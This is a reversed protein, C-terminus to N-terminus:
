KMWLEDVFYSRHDSFSGLRTFGAAFALDRIERPSFKWSTEVHVAEFAGLRMEFDLSPMHVKQDELSVLWSEMAGTGPNYAAMHRFRTEDFDAGLERNLRRLLNFNFERTVGESDDYARLMVQADKKLDFGVLLVDGPYMVARLRRLIARQEEPTYNGVSSGLYLILNRKDKALPLRQLDVELDLVCPEITVGACSRTFRSVLDELAEASIDVPRYVLNELTSQAERLLFATKRGDGAGLEVINLEHREGCAALIDRSSRKLIESECRTPYYDNLETIKEFLRSGRSDYFYKSPIHRPHRNLGELLDDYQNLPRPASKLVAM